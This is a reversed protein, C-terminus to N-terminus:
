YGRILKKIIHRLVYACDEDHKSPYGTSCKSGIPQPNPQYMERIMDLITEVVLSPKTNHQISVQRVWNVVNPDLRLSMPQRKSTSHM